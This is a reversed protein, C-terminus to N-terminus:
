TRSGLIKPYLLFVVMEEIKSRHRLIASSSRRMIVVRNGYLVANISRRPQNPSPHVHDGPFAPKCSQYQEKGGDVRHCTRKIGVARGAAFTEFWAPADNAHTGATLKWAILIVPYRIAVRKVGVAGSSLGTREVDLTAGAVM